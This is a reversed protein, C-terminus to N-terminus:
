VLLQAHEHSPPCINTIEGVSLVSYVDSQFYSLSFLVNADPKLVLTLPLDLPLGLMM